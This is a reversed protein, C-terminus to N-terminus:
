KEASRWQKNQRAGCRLVGWGHLSENGRCCCRGALALLQKLRALDVLMSKMERNLVTFVGCAPERYEMHYSPRIDLEGKSTKAAEGYITAHQSMMVLIEDIGLRSRLCRALRQDAGANGLLFHLLPRRFCAVVRAFFTGTFLLHYWLTLEVRFVSQVHSTFVCGPQQPRERAGNNCPGQPGELCLSFIAKARTVTETM